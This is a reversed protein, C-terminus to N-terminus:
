PGPRLDPRFLSVINAARDSRELVGLVFIVLIVCADITAVRSRVRHEDFAGVRVV